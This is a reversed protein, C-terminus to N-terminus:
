NPPYSVNALATDVDVPRAVERGERVSGPTGAEEEGNLRSYGDVGVAPIAPLRQTVTLEGAHRGQALCRDTPGV